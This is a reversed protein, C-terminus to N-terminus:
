FSKRPQGSESLPRRFVERPHDQLMVRLYGAVEKSAKVIPKDFAASSYRRRGLELAALIIITKVKGLGKLKMMGNFDLRALEHLNNKVM